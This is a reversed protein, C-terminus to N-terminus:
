ALENPLMHLVHFISGARPGQPMCRYGTRTLCQRTSLTGELFNLIPTTFPQWESNYNNIWIDECRRKLVVVIGKESITLAEYYADTSVGACKCLTKVSHIKSMQEKDELVTKIAKLVEKCEKKKQELEKIEEERLQLGIYTNNYQLLDKISPPYIEIQKSSILM